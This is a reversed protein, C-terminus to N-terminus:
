SKRTPRNNRSKYGSIVRNYFDTLHGYYAEPDFNERAFALAHHRMADYSRPDLNQMELIKERLAATDGAPFTFGTVGEPIIEPIGGIRAGIAPIGLSYAEIVTMPNNEYWVSPVIIARAGATLAELEHGSKYGLFEINSLQHAAARAQLAEAEPGTGVIKLTLQPLSAFADILTSVGKESALRGLYIYYPPTAPEAPSAAIAPAMNYLRTSPIRTLAPMYSEHRGRMFDSVYIIGNLMRAPNFFANRFYQEAAMMVSLPKSGKCCNGGICHYFHKGRCKECVEGAGNRFTSAPCVIRGDHATIVVPVGERRLTRLVSPTLQGWILHVHAIDPREARVLRRLKRAAEFHYFYTVINKLPRLFGRRTDKSEPFYGSWPSPINGPWKLAFEVVEHGHARMLASTNFYVTESGGRKYHFVNISLLKM